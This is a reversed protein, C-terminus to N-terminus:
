WPLPPRGAGVSCGVQQGLLAGLPVAWSRGEQRSAAYGVGGGLIGGVLRGVNCRQDIQQQSLQPQVPIQRSYRNGNGHPPPDNRPFDYVTHPNGAPVRWTPLALAGAPNSLLALLLTGASALSPKASFTMTRPNRLFAGIRPNM